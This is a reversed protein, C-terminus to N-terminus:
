LTGGLPDFPLWLTPCIQVVYVSRPKVDLVCLGSLCFYIFDALGAALHAFSRILHM